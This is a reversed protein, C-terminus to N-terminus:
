PLNGQQFKQYTYPNCIFAELGPSRGYWTIAEFNHYAVTRCILDLQFRDLLDSSTHIGFGNM